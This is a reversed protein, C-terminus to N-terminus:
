TLPWLDTETADGARRHEDALRLRVETCITM